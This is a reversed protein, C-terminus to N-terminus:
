MSRLIHIFLSACTESIVTNDSSEKKETKVELVIKWLKRFERYCEMLVSDLVTDNLKRCNAYEVLRRAFM